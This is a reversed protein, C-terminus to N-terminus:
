FQSLYDDIYSPDVKKLEAYGGPFLVILYEGLRSLEAPPIIKELHEHLSMTIDGNRNWSVSERYGTKEGIRKSIHEATDPDNCGLVAWLEINDMMSKREDRGYVVDIDAISQTLIMIRVQKKRLKRLADTIEIRGFSAFEDLCFLINNGHYNPRKSMYELTQSTILNLLPSYAKLKTNDLVIFISENELRDPSVYKEGQKPRRINKRLNESFVFLNLAKDVAQKCGATNQPNAGVFSSIFQNAKTNQLKKIDSFLGQFSIRDCIEIFDMGAHYYCILTSILIKRGETEFYRTTSDDKEYEREFKLQKVTRNGGYTAGNLVSAYIGNENLHEEWAPHFNMLEWKTLVASSCIKQGGRKPDDVVPIFYYHLHPRGSEDNHVTAIVTNEECYKSSLFRYTETFFRRHLEEPLDTPM